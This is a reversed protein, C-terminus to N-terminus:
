RINLIARCVGKVVERMKPFSLTDMTDSREHYNRNRFFATDTVMVADYGFKWYNRHDSFDFGTVFAPARLTEVPTSSKGLNKAVQSVLGWSGWNGVVGIFNGTDPYFLGLLGLPYSQSHKTDTFYGIMELCIMGRVKVNSRHLSEAHVYSGMNETGFFPPEELAYAVVDVRYKLASEHEKAFRAIELLGAVGSANDDAGPQDGCVDYHAGVVIRSGERPGASAMINVYRRGNAIFEQEEPKLGYESLKHSIYAASKDLSPPHLYNRSPTIGSLVRVTEKLNEVSIEPDPYAPDHSAFAPVALGMTLIAAAATM